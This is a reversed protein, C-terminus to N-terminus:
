QIPVRIHRCKRSAACCVSYTLYYVQAGCQHPVVGSVHVQTAIGRACPEAAQLDRGIQLEFDMEMRSNFRAMADRRPNIHISRGRRPAIRVSEGSHFGQPMAVMRGGLSVAGGADGISVLREASKGAVFQTGANM